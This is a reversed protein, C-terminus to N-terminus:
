NVFWKTLLVSVVSGCVGGIVYGAMASKTKAEAVKKILTFQMFAIFTDSIIVNLIWANAVARINWCLFGYVFFQIFFFFLFDKM